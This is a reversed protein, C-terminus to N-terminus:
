LLFNDLDFFIGNLFYYLYRFFSLDRIGVVVLNIINVVVVVLVVFFFINFVRCKDFFFIFNILCFGFWGFM